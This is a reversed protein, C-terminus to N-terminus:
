LYLNALLLLIATFGIVYAIGSVALTLETRGRRHLVYGILGLVIAIGMLLRATEM